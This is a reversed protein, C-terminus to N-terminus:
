TDQTKIKLKGSLARSKWMDRRDSKFSEKKQKELSEFHGASLCELVVSFAILYYLIFNYGQSLFMGSACYGALSVFTADALLVVENLNVPEGGEPSKKKEVQSGYERVNKKVKNLTKFASGIMLLFVILGPFGAEGGIQMFMNHAVRRMGPVDIADAPRYRVFGEGFNGAGVGFLRGKMMNFGAEWADLRSIAANDEDAATEITLMRDRFTQPAIQWGLALVFIGIVALRAKYKNKLWLIFLMVLLALFGGRSQTLVIAWLFLTIAGLQILKRVFSKGRFLDFYLFPILMTFGLALDNPDGFLAGRYAGFMRGGDMGAGSGYYERISVVGIYLMSLVMAWVIARYRNLSSVLNIILFYAIYVKFFNVMFGYTNGRWISTFMSLCMVVGLALFWRSSVAKFFEIGGKKRKHMFVMLFTLAGLILSPRAAALVSSFIGPKIYLSVTLMYLGIFPNFFVGVISVAIIIGLIIEM